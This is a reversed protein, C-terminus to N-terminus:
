GSHTQSSGPPVEKATASPSPEACKMLRTCTVRSSIGGLRARRRSDALQCLDGPQPILRRAPPDHEAGASVANTDLM